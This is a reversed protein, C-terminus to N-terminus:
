SIILAIILIILSFLFLSFILYLFNQTIKPFRTEIYPLSDLFIELQNEKCITDFKIRDSNKIYYKTSRSNTQYELENHFEINNEFLLRELTLTDEFRINFKFDEQGNFM